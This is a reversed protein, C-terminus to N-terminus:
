QQQGGVATAVSIKIAVAPQVCHLMSVRYQWNGVLQSGDLKTNHRRHINTTGTTFDMYVVGGKAAFAPHASVAVIFRVTVSGEKPLKRPCVDSFNIDHKDCWVYVDSKTSKNIVISSEDIFIINEPHFPINKLHQLRARAYQLREELQDPTFSHKFFIKRRVLDPDHIHMAHLLQEPTIDKDTVLQQLAPEERVAEAISTYHVLHEVTKGRINHAVLRGAKVIESAKLAEEKSIKYPRGSRDGDAVSGREKFHQWWTQLYKTDHSLIRIKKHEPVKEQEKELQAILAVHVQHWNPVENVLHQCCLIIAM